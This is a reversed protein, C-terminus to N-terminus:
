GSNIRVKTILRKLYYLGEAKEVACGVLYDGAPKLEGHAEEKVMYELTKKYARGQEKVMELQQKDAEQSAQMAPQNSQTSSDM